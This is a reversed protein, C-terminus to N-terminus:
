RKIKKNKIDYNDCTFNTSWLQASSMWNKKDSFDSSMKAGEDEDSNGKSPIFEEMVPRVESERCQMKEEKLRMIADNLLLMCLPLERKFGDIKRMEDELM